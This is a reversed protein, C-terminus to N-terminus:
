IIALPHPVPTYKYSPEAAISKIADILSEPNIPKMFFRYARIGKRRVTEEADTYGSIFILNISEDIKLLKEALEDGRMHPLVYDLIAIVYKKERAKNLAEDPSHTSEIEFGEYEFIFKYCDIIDDDDDVILINRNGNVNNVGPENRFCAEEKNRDVLLTPEQKVDPMIFFPMFWIYYSCTPVNQFM